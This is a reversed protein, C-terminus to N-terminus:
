LPTAGEGWLGGVGRSVRQSHVCHAPDEPRLIIKGLPPGEKGAVGGVGGGSLALNTQQSALSLAASPCASSSGACLGGRLMDM